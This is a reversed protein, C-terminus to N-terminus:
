AVFCDYLTKRVSVANAEYIDLVNRLPMKNWKKLSWSLRCLVPRRLLSVAPSTRSLTWGPLLSLTRKSRRVDKEAAPLHDICGYLLLSQALTRPIPMASMLLFDVKEGKELLQILQTVGFRHQEDAVVMGWIMFTCMKKFCPM